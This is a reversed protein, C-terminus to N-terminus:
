DTRVLLYVSFLILFGGLVVNMKLEENMILFALFVGSVPELLSIISANSAKVKKFGSFYLSFAIATPILGLFVLIVANEMIVHYPTKLAFPFFMFSTILNVWVALTIGSYMQSLYRATIMELGYTLGSLVGISIGFFYQSGLGLKYPEAILVIGLISFFLSVLTIKTIGEKILVPSLIAVFVPATYLLLIAVSISIEKMTKFYLFITSGTLIGSLVLYKLDSKDKFITLHRSFYFVSFLIVFGIFTRFFVISGVNMGTTSKVFIGVSGMLIAGLAIKVYGEFEDM